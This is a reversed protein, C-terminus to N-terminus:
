NEYTRQFLNRTLQIEISIKKRMEERYFNICFKTHDNVKHFIDDFDEMNM